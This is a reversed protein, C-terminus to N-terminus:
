IPNQIVVLFFRRVIDILVGVGLIIQFIGSLRAANIKSIPSRGVAYLGIGYVTADALMDLSDAIVATSESIVGFTIEVVFM